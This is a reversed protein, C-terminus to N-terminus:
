PYNELSTGRKIYLPHRPSGNKNRGLCKFPGFREALDAGRSYAIPATGWAALVIGGAERVELIQHNIYVDNLPGIPDRAKYLKAPDTARYAFLNVVRLETCVWHIGFSVCANITPDNSEEDATSPNLMIALLPKYPQLLAERSFESFKRLLLYRFMRDPSLIASRHRNQIQLESM